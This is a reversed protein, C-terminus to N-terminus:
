RLFHDPNEPIHRFHVRKRIQQANMEPRLDNFKTQLEILNEYAAIQGDPEKILEPSDTTKAPCIIAVWKGELSTLENDSVGLKLLEKPIM